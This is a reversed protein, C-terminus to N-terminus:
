RGSEQNLIKIIHGMKVIVMVRKNEKLDNYVGFSCGLTRCKDSDVYKCDVTYHKVPTIKSRMSNFGQYETIRKKLVVVQTKKGRYFIEISIYSIFALLIAIVIITQIIQSLDEM